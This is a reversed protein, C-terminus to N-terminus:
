ARIHIHAEPASRRNLAPRPARARLVDRARLGLIALTPLMWFPQVLNALAEGLDYVRLVNKHTVRSSLQIERKFREIIGTDSAIEPRIVKLAVERQLEEDHCRYVAGMGGRGLLKV